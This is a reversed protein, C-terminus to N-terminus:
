SGDYVDLLNQKEKDWNYRKKAVKFGNRGLTEALEPDDRLREIAEKVSDKTFDVVLGCRNCRTMEAAFTGDTVIIPRGCVMAEFQKNYVTKQNQRSTPDVLVFTADADRTRPIIEDTPITGLFTIDDMGKVYEKMEFFLGEKKGALVLRVDQLERVIDIIEPFFRGKNMIGIYILTFADNKPAQYGDYVMDKCNKVITVPCGAISEFYDRFPEDVTIMSDVHEVLKKEMRLAFRCVSGPMNEEIMYGFIEHADYVLKCNLKRKLWVGSQLTDLDHCHVVDFKFGQKYIEMGKSYARRWWFPNRFLDHYALRMLGTNHIRVVRIGEVISGEGYEGKRDWVVVTVEHGAEILTKAEKYVRPDVMFPNSLLMLIKMLIGRKARALLMKWAM